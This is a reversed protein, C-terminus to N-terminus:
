FDIDSLDATNYTSNNEQINNESCTLRINLKSPREFDQNSVDLTSDNYREKM